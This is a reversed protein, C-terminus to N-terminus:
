GQYIQETTGDYYYAQNSLIERPDVQTENIETVMQTLEEQDFTTSVPVLICEHVSSPLIYFNRGLRKQAEKLVGPYLFAGAGFFRNENTLIYMKREEDRPMGLIQGMDIFEATLKQCTNAYANREMEEQDIGWLKLHSNEVLVTADALDEAQIQYYFVLALDLVRRHPVKKLQEQNREYNIVKFFINPKLEEYNEFFDDSVHLMPNYHAFQWYLKKVLQEMPVGKEWYSFYDKLYFVSAVRSDKKRLVLGELLIGNNKQIEETTVCVEQDAMNKVHKIFECRFEQYEM